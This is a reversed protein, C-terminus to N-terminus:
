QSGIHHPPNPRRIGVTNAKTIDGSIPEMDAIAGTGFPSTTLPSHDAGSTALNARAQQAPGMTTREFPSDNDHMAWM